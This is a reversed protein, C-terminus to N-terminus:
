CSISLQFFAGICKYISFLFFLFAVIPWRPNKNMEIFISHYNKTTKFLAFRFLNARRMRM